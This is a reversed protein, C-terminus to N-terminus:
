KLQEESLGFHHGIEHYVVEAIKRKIEANSRCIKEISNKYITIKDPLTSSHWVSRKKLPIGRYLGLLLNARRALDKPMDDEIVIDVNQLKNKFQEPLKDLAELILQQFADKEM